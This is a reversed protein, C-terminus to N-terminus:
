LRDEKMLLGNNVRCRNLQITPKKRKSPAGLYACIQTYLGDTQNAEKVEEPLMPIRNFQPRHEEASTTPSHPEGHPEADEEIPQLNVAHEFQEPPLLTQM